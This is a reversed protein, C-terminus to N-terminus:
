KFQMQLKTGSAVLCTGVWALLRGRFMMLRTPKGAELSKWLNWMQAEEIREQERRKAEAYFDIV